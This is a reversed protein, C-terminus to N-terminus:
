RGRLNLIPIAQGPSLQMSTYEFSTPMTGVSVSPVVPSSVPKTTSAPPPIPIVWLRGSSVYGSSARGDGPHRRGVEAVDDLRDDGGLAVVAVAVVAVPGSQLVEEFLAPDVPQAVLDLLAGPQVSAGGTASGSNWSSAWKWQCSISPTSM